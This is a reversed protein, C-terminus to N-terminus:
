ITEKVGKNIQWMNAEYNKCIFEKIKDDDVSSEFDKKLDKPEQVTYVSTVTTEEVKKNSTALLEEKEFDYYCKYNESGKTM